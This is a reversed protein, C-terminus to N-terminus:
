PEVEEIPSCSLLHNLLWHDYLDLLLLIAFQSALFIWFGIRAFRYSFYIGTTTLLAACALVRRLRISWNSTVPYYCRPVVQFAMLFMVLRWSEGTKHFTDPMITVAWM